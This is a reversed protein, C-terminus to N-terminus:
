VGALSWAGISAQGGFRDGAGRRVVFYLRNNAADYNCGGILDYGRYENLFPPKPLAGHSYPQVASPSITGAYAQALTDVDYLWFYPGYNYPYYAFHGGYDGYGEADVIGPGKYLIVNQPRSDYNQGLFNSGVAMLTRTGPVFFFTGCISLQNWMDATDMSGGMGNGLDDITYDAIVTASVSQGASTAAIIDAANVAWMSIGAPAASVISLNGGNGSIHTKGGFMSQFESPIPTLWGCNHRAGTVHFMGAQAGAALNAGNRYVMYNTALNEGTYFNTGGCIVQGSHPTIGMLRTYELANLSTAFKFNQVVTAVNLANIDTGTVLAPIVIEAIASGAPGDGQMQGTVYMRGATESVAIAGYDDYFAGGIDGYLGGDNPIFAGLYTPTGGIEGAGPTGLTYLPLEGPEGM